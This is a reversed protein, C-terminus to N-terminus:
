QPGETGDVGGSGGLGVSPLSGGARLHRRRRAWESPLARLGGLVDVLLVHSWGLREVAEAIIHAIAVHYGAVIRGAGVLPEM